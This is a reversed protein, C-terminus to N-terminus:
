RSSRQNGNDALTTAILLGRPDYEYSNIAQQAVGQNAVVIFKQETDSYPQEQNFLAYVVNVFQQWWSLGDESNQQLLDDSNISQKQQIVRGADDYILETVQGTSKSILTPQGDANHQSYTTIVGYADTSSLLNGNVEDYQYVIQEGNPAVQKTMQGFNNYEYSWTRNEQTQPDTITKSLTNGQADYTYVTTRVVM